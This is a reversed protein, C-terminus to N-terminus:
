PGKPTTTVTVTVTVTETVTKPPSTVQTTVTVTSTPGTVTVTQAPATATRTVTATLTQNQVVTSTHENTVENTVTALQTATLTNTLVKTNTIVSKVTVPKGQVRVTTARYVSVPRTVVQTGAPTRITQTQLETVPAAAVRKVVAVKKVVVRGQEYVKVTRMVTTTPPVYPPVYAGSSIPTASGGGMAAVGLYGAFGLLGLVMIAVVAVGNPYKSGLYRYWGPHLWRKFWGPRV